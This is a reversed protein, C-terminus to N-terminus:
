RIRPSDVLPQERNQIIPRSFSLSLPDIGHRELVCGLLDALSRTSSDRASSDQPVSIRESIVTYAADRFSAQAFMFVEQPFRAIALHVHTDIQVCTYM